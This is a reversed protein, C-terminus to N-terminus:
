TSIYCQLVPRRLCNKFLETSKIRSHKHFNRLKLFQFWLPRRGVCSAFLCCFLLTGSVYSNKQAVFHRSWWCVSDLRKIITRRRPRTTQWETM